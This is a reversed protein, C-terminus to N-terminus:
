PAPPAMAIAEEIVEFFSGDAIMHEIVFHDACHEIPHLTVNPLPKLLEADAVDPAFGSGFCQHIRTRPAARIMELLGLDAQTLHSFITTKAGGSGSRMPAEEATDAGVHIPGAFSIAAHADLMVGVRIASLGGLSSGYTIVPVGLPACLAKLQVIMSAADPGLSRVGSIFSRNNLDRLYIANVPLRALLADAHSMPLYGLGGAQGALLILTARAGPTRVVQVDQAPDNVVGRAGRWTAAPYLKLAARLPMAMAAVPSGAQVRDLINMAEVTCLHRLCAVAYQFWWREDTVTAAAATLREFLERDAAMPCTSRNYRFALMWDGPWRTLADRLLEIMERHRLSFHAAQIARRTFEAREPQRARLQMALEFAEDFRTATILLELMLMQSEPPLPGYQRARDLLREAEARDRERLSLTALKPLVLRDEPTDRLLSQLFERRRSLDTLATSIRSLLAKRAAEPASSGWVREAFVRAGEEARRQSLLLETLRLAPWFQNPHQALAARYCAEAQALERTKEFWTGELLMLGLNQPWRRRAEAIRPGLDPALPAPGRLAADIAAFQGALDNPASADPTVPFGRREFQEERAM